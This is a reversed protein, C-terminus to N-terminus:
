NCYELFVKCWRRPVNIPAAAIKEALSVTHSVWFVYCFEHSSSLPQLKLLMVGGSVDTEFILKGVVSAFNRSRINTSLFIVTFKGLSLILCIVCPFVFM